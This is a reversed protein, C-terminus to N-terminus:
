AREIKSACEIDTKQVLKLRPLLYSQDSPSSVFHRCRSVPFIFSKKRGKELKEDAERFKWAAKKKHMERFSRLMSTIVETLTAIKIDTVAPDNM